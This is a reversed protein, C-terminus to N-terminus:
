EGGFGAPRAALLAAATSVEQGLDKYATGFFLFHHQVLAGALGRCSVYVYAGTYHGKSNVRWRVVGGRGDPLWGTQPDPDSKISLSYGVYPPHVFPAEFMLPEGIRAAFGAETDIRHASIAWRASNEQRIARADARREALLTPTFFDLSVAGSEM